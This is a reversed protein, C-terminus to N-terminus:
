VSAGHRLQRGRTRHREEHPGGHSGAGFARRSAPHSRPGRRARRLHGSRDGCGLASTPAGGPHSRPHHGHAPAVAENQHEAGDPRPLPHQRLRGRRSGWRRESGQGGRHGRGHVRDRRRDGFAGGEGCGAAGSGHPLHLARRVGGEDPEQGGARLRPRRAAGGARAAAAGRARSDPKGAIDGGHPEGALERGPCVGRGPDEAEGVRLGAPLASHVESDD